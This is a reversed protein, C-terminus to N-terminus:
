LKGFDEKVVRKPRKTVVEDRVLTQERHIPKVVHIATACVSIILLCFGFFQAEHSSLLALM